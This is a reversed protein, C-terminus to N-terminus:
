ELLQCGEQFGQWKKEPDLLKAVMEEEYFKTQGWRCVKNTNNKIIRFIAMLMFKRLKLEALISLCIMKQQLMSGELRTTAVEKANKWYVDISLSTDYM